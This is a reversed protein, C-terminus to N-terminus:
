QRETNLARSYKESGSTGKKVPMIAADALANNKIAYMISDFCEGLLTSCQEQSYSYAGTSCLMCMAYSRILVNNFVKKVEDDALSYTSKLSNYDNELQPYRLYGYIDNMDNDTKIGVFLARFLHPEDSAFKVFQMGRMKFAPVYDDAVALYQSFIEYAKARVDAILEDMNNWFTFIPSSSTGLRSGVERAVVANIGRTRAIELAADVIQEKSFKPKPPM